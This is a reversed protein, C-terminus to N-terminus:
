AANLGTRRWFPRKLGGRQAVERLLLVGLASCVLTAVVSAEPGFQGGTLWDPGRLTAQTMGHVANGSVSTGWIGEEAFNWGVHIGIPLWLRRTLMYAAALFVGAEVMIAAAATLTSNPNVLHLAGFIFASVAIAWWSGLSDEVIRFVIARLLLEEFLGAGLASQFPLGLATWNGVDVIHYNGSLALVAIVSSIAVVGLAFGALLERAAPRVALEAVTRGEVRRTYLAFLLMSLVAGIPEILAQAEYPPLHAARLQPRAIISLLVMPLLALAIKIVLLAVPNRLWRLIRPSAPHYPVEAM